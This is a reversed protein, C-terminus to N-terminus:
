RPAGAAPAHRRAFGARADPRAHARRAVGPGVSRVLLAKHMAAWLPARRSRACLSLSAARLSHARGALAGPYAARYRERPRAGLRSPFFGLSWALRRGAGPAARRRAAPRRWPRFLRQARAAAGHTRSVLGQVKRYPPSGASRARRVAACPGGHSRCCHLLHRTAQSRGCRAAWRALPERASATRRAPRVVRARSCAGRAYGGRPSLVPPRRVCAAKDYSPREDVNSVCCALM